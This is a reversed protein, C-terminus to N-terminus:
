NGPKVLLLDGPMLEDIAVLNMQGNEIRLATEPKLAM